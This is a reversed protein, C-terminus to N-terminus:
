LQLIIKVLRKYSEGTIPKTGFDALQKATEVYQLKVKNELIMQKFFDVKVAIHKSRASYNVDHSSMLTIAAENDEFVTVVGQPFLMEELLEIYHLLDSISENLAYLEAETSSRCVSKIRGSKMHFPANSVDLQTWVCYWSVTGTVCYSADVYAYLQVADPCVFTLRYDATGKLYALVRNCATRLGVTPKSMATTLVSTAFKIDPRVDDVYRTEMIQSHLQYEDLQEGSTILDFVTGVCPTSASTSVSYKKLLSEIYAPRSVSVSKSACEIEITTGLFSLVAGEQKTIGALNNTLVRLLDTYMSLHNYAILMDDVHLCLFLCKNRVFRMFFAKDAKSQTYGHSILLSTLHLFWLRAAELLGCLAKNLKIIMSGDSQVYTSWEPHLSLLYSVYRKNIRGYLLKSEIRAHLYASKIDVAALQLGLYATVNLLLFVSQIRVTASTTETEDDRPQLNGGAVLRSKLKDFNGNSDFKEKHIMHLPLVGAGRLVPTLAGMTDFLSKLEELVSNRLADAGRRSEIDRLETHLVYEEALM